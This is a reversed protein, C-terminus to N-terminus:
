QAVAVPAHQLARARRVFRNQGAALQRHCGIAMRRVYTHHSTKASRTKHKANVAYVQAMAFRHRQVVLLGTKGCEPVIVSNHHRTIVKANKPALMAYATETAVRQTIERAPQKHKGLAMAPVFNRYTTIVRSRVPVAVM